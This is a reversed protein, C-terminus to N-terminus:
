KTITVIDNNTEVTFKNLARNAPGNIVDGDTSFVSGHCTCVFNGNNLEWNRDCNSHTCVSTLAKIQGDNVVLIQADLILIWGGSSQLEEVVTLDITIVNGNISIGNDAGSGDSTDPDSDGTSNNDPQPDEESSCSTFFSLGFMSMTAIGGMQKLFKRRDEAIIGKKFTILEREM